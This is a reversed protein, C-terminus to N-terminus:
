QSVLRRLAPARFLRSVLCSGGVEHDRSVDWSITAAEMDTVIQRIEDTVIGVKQSKQRLHSHPLAIIDDKTM